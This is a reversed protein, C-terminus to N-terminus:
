PRNEDRVAKIAENVDKKKLQVKKAFKQSESILKSFSGIKPSRIPKLLLNTGDTMAILKTGPKLGLQKRIRAPIVVQGKTSSSTIEITTM